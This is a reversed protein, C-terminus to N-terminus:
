RRRALREVPEGDQHREREAGRGSVPRELEGSPRRALRDQQRRRQDEGDHDAPPEARVDHQREPEGVDEGAREAGVEAVPEGERLGLAAEAQPRGQGAHDEEERDERRDDVQGDGALVHDLELFRVLVSRGRDAVRSPLPDHEAVEGRHRDACTAHQGVRVGLRVRHSGGGLLTRGGDAPRCQRRRLRGLVERRVLEGRQAHDRLRCQGLQLFAVLGPRGRVDVLELRGPVGVLGGEFREVLRRPGEEVSPDVGTSCARRALAGSLAASTAARCARAWDSPHGDCGM